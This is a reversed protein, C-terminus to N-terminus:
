RGTRRAGGTVRRGDISVVPRRTPPRPLGDDEPTFYTAIVMHMQVASPTTADRAVSVQSVALWHSDGEIAALLKKFTPYDTAYGFSVLMETLSLSELPATSYSIQAPTVGTRRFVQHMEEVLPALAERGRGVRKAYFEQIAQSVLAIRDRQSTLRRAEQDKAAADSALAAREKELGEARKEATSRYWLFFALNALLFAIAPAV